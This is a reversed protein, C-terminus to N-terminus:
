ACIGAYCLNRLFQKLTQYRIQRQQDRQQDLNSPKFENKDAAMALSWPVGSGYDPM